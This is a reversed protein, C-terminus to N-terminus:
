AGRKKSVPKGKTNNRALQKLYDVLDNQTARHGEELGRVGPHVFLDLNQVKVIRTATSNQQSRYVMWLFILFLITIIIGSVAYAIWGSSPYTLAASTLVTAALPGTFVALWNFIEYRKIDQLPVLDLEIDGPLSVRVQTNERQSSNKKNNIM